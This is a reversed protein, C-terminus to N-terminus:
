PLSNAIAIASDLPLNTEIRYFAHETRWILTSRRVTRISEEIETGDATRFALLHPGGSIWRASVGERLEFDQVRVGPPVGKGAVMGSELQAEWLDFGYYQLIAIPEALYRVVYSQRPAEDDVFAVDFGVAEDLAEVPVARSSAPLDVPTPLPTAETGPPPAPLVDVESGEIGFFDAIAGRSSPVSLAIMAGFLAVAVAITAFAFAPRRAATRREAPAAIASLVRSRLQPTAPYAVGAAARQLLTLEYGENM